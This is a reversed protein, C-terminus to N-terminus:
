ECELYEGSIHHALLLFGLVRSGEPLRVRCGPSYDQTLECTRALARRGENM